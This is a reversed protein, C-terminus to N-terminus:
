NNKKIIKIKDGVPFMEFKDGIAHKVESWLKFSNSKALSTGPSISSIVVRASDAKMTKHSTEDDVSFDSSRKTM